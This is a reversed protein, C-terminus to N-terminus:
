QWRADGGVLWAWEKQISATIEGDLGFGHPPEFLHVDLRARKLALMREVAEARCPSNPTCVLLVRKGGARAYREIVGSSFSALSGDVLVLAAFFKPEELAVSIAREVGPGTAALVIPGKAVHEGYRAKLAPLAARLEARTAAPDGLGFRGDDRPVGRLCLVFARASSAHHYSGCPWEPRDDDGHIVAVIPRPKRSGLPLAVRAEGFGPVDLAALWSPAALPPLARASASTSPSPASGSKRSGHCGLALCLPIIWLAAL